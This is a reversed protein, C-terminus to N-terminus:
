LQLPALINLWKSKIGECLRVWSMKQVAARPLIGPSMPSGNVGHFAGSPGM